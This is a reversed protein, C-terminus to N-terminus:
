RRSRRQFGEPFGSGPVMGQCKGGPPSQRPGRQEALQGSQSARPPTTSGQSLVSARVRACHPESGRRGCGTRVSTQPDENRKSKTATLQEAALLHALHTVSYSSERPPENIRAAAIIEAEISDTSAATLPPPNDAAVEYTEVALLGRRAAEDHWGALLAGFGGRALREDRPGVFFLRRRARTIAVYLLRRREAEAASRARARYDQWGADFGQLAERWATQQDEPLPKQDRAAKLAAYLLERAEAEAAGLAESWGDKWARELADGPESGKGLAPSSDEEAWRGGLPNTM